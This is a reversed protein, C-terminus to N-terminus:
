FEPGVSAAQHRASVPSHEDRGAAIEGADFSSGCSPCTVQSGADHGSEMDATDHPNPTISTHSPKKSAMRATHRMAAPRNTYQTGDSAQHAM